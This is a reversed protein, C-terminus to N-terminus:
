EPQQVECTDDLYDVGVGGRCVDEGFWGVIVDDGKNGRLVDNGEGGFLFDDGKGGLSLDNGDLGYLADDGPGGDLRDDGGGGLLDDDGIGGYIRDRGGRGRLVDNGDNGCIVDDGKLGRILDDGGLGRIVDNGETGYIEDDGATGVITPPLISCDFGIGGPTPSPGPTQTMSPTTTPTPTSVVGASSGCLSGGTLTVATQALGQGDFSGNTSTLSTGALVTGIFVSDTLAAGETTWWQVNNDCASGGPMSVTFNTLTLAGVGGSGVKFIWTGNPPGVLTLLGGTETAAADFCYVGPALFQAALSQGTLNTTCSTAGVAVYASQFDGYALQAAVDGQHAAGPPSITCNTQTITGGFDVGVDGGSVTSDTCTVATGGLLAFGAANGLAQASASAPAFFVAAFAVMVLRATLRILSRARIREM